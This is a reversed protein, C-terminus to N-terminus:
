FFTYYRRESLRWVLVGLEPLHYDGWLSSERVPVKAGKPIYDWGNPRHYVSHLLIGEHKPDTSLYPEASLQRAISLGAQLYSKEKAGLSMGLRILGQAAIAGASSDVPEYDNYPNAPVAQWDGLKHLNPAETDWYCIGDSASSNRICFDCTARAAKELMKVAEPKKLAVDAGFEREPLARIFELEEAFGLMARALGFERAVERESRGEVLVARRVRAYLEVTYM